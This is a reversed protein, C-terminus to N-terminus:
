SANSDGGREPGPSSFRQRSLLGHQHAAAVAELQSQVGLKALLSKVQTRVTAEAVVAARAIERVTRGRAIETLVEIERGSLLAIGERARRVRAEEHDYAHLLARREDPALVPAGALCRALVDVIQDFTTVKSMVTVAGAALAHGWRVKDEHATIAIVCTGARALPAIVSTGDGARGLSLDVLAADPRKRAVAGALSAAPTSGDVVVPIAAYGARELAVQLVQAFLAHDEVIAVRPRDPRSSM